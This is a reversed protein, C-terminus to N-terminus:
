KLAIKSDTITRLVLNVVVFVTSLSEPTLVDKLEPVVVVIIGILLNAWITKSLYWKKVKQSESIEMTM